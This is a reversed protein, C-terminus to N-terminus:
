PEVDKVKRIINNVFDNLGKETVALYGFRRPKLEFIIQNVQRPPHIGDDYLLERTQIIPLRVSVDASPLSLTSFVNSVERISQSYGEIINGAPNSFLLKRISQIINASLPRLLGHANNKILFNPKKTTGRKIIIEPCNQRIFFEITTKLPLENFYFNFDKIGYLIEPNEPFSYVDFGPIDM